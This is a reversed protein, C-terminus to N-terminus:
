LYLILMRGIMLTKNYDISDIQEFGYFFCFCPKFPKATKGVSKCTTQLFKINIKQPIRWKILPLKSKKLPKRRFKYEVVGQRLRM